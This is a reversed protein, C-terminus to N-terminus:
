RRRRQRRAGRAASKESVNEAARNRWFARLRYRGPVSGDIAGALDAFGARRLLLRLRSVVKQIARRDVRGNCAAPWANAAITECSMWRGPSRSLTELVELPLGTGIEGARGAFVVSLTGRDVRPADPDHPVVPAAEGALAATVRARYVNAAEEIARRYDKEAEDLADNM